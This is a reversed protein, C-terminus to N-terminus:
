SLPAEPPSPSASAGPTRGTRVWEASSGNGRRRMARSLLLAFKWCVYFPARVLARYAEPPANSVRFGALVYVLLGLVTLGASIAWASAHPLLHTVAGLIILLLWGGILGALEALPPVVLDWGMDWLLLNRRRLGELLLPLARERVMRARGEEWRARQSSAQTGDVPMQALVTVEPAYGVRVQFRRALELGYDLDETLSGGPWSVQEAAARSFAMGNGKLGVSLGLMERGMPKVHNVLDFAGAMLAARWGDQSNLVSYRAQWASLGTPGAGSALRISMAGLFEPSVWTDADVILFGDPVDPTALLHSIAFNLAYGKGRESLNARELVNAGLSRAIDATRDTCNDAVVVIEYREAPYNQAKLSELTMALMLEEDHAPVIVALRLASEANGSLQPRRAFLAAALLFLLTVVSAMSAVGLSAVLIPYLLSM